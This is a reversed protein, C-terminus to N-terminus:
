KRGAALLSVLQSWDVDVVCFCEARLDRDGEDCAAFIEMLTKLSMTARSTKARKRHTVAIPWSKALRCERTDRTAQELKARAMDKASDCCEIWLPSDEVVVDPEMAGHAQEGRRVRSQKLLVVREAPKAKSMAMRLEIPDYITRLTQAVEREFSFGKRRAGGPKM